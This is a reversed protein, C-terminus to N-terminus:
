GKKGIENDRIKGGDVKVDDIGDRGAKSDDGIRVKDKKLEASNTSSTKLM